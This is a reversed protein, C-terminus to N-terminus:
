RTSRRKYASLKSHTRVADSQMFETQKAQLNRMLTEFEHVSEIRRLPHKM